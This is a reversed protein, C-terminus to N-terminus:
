ATQEVELAVPPAAVSSGAVVPPLEVMWVIAVRMEARPAVPATNNSNQFFVQIWQINSHFITSM